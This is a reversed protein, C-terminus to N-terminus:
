ITHVTAPLCFVSYFATSIAHHTHLPATRDQWSCEEYIGLRMQPFPTGALPGVVFTNLLIYAPCLAFDYLTYPLLSHSWTYDEFVFARDALQVLYAMIVMEQLIKNLIHGWLHDPFHLFHPGSGALAVTTMNHQLLARKHTHM